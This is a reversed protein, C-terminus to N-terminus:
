TYLGSNEIFYNLTKNIKANNTEIRMTKFFCGDSFNYIMNAIINKWDERETIRIIPVLHFADEPLSTFVLHSEGQEGVISSFTAHPLFHYFQSIVKEEAFAYQYAYYGVRGFCLPNSRDGILTIRPMKPPMGVKIKELYYECRKKVKLHLDYIEFTKPTIEYQLIERSKSEPLYAEAYKLLEENNIKLRELAIIGYCVQRYHMQLLVIAPIEEGEIHIYNDAAHFLKSDCENCFGKFTPDDNISFQGFFNRGNEGPFMTEYMNKVIKNLGNPNSNYRKISKKSITHCKQTISNLCDPNLCNHRKKQTKKIINNITQRLPKENIYTPAISSTSTTKVEMNNRGKNQM